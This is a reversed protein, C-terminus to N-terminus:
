NPICISLCVSLHVSPLGHLNGNARPPLLAWVLAAGTRSDRRCARRGEPLSRFTGRVLKSGAGGPKGEERATVARKDGTKCVCVCCVVRVNVRQLGQGGLLGEGCSGPSEELSWVPPPLRAPVRVGGGQWPSQALQCAAFLRAGESHLARMFIVPGCVHEDEHVQSSREDSCALGEDLRRKHGWFLGSQLPYSTTGHWDAPLSYRHVGSM